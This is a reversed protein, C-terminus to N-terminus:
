SIINRLKEKLKKNKVYKLASGNEKIAALCIEETQNKVHELARGNQEVAALCIEETQNKVYYLAYGYQKVAALCIEETQNKVYYLAYGNKKVAALCMEETQDKVFELAFGNKKVAALCMEETQDKVYKLARWNQKVVAICIAETQDKVYQLADSNQKVASMCITETQNKVFELAFGNQKVAALCAAETQNKVYQLLMGNKPIAKFLLPELVSYVKPNEDWYKMVDIANDSTDMFQSSEFHFQWRKGDKRRLIIILNGEDNYHNFEGSTTCWNTNKGFYAAADATKPILIMYDDGDYLVDVQKRMPDNVDWLRGKVEVKNAKRDKKGSIERDGVLFPEIAIFLDNFSKYHNIDPDIRRSKAVQDFMGLSTKLKSIDELKQNRKLYSQVIWTSYKKTPTPDGSMLHNILQDLDFDYHEKNANFKTILANGYNKAIWEARSAENEFLAFEFSEM